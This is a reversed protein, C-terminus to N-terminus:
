APPHWKKELQARLHERARAIKREIAKESCKLVAAIARHRQGNIEFLVFAVRQDHPLTGIAQELDRGLARHDTEDSPDSTHSRDATDKESDADLVEPHRSRWRARMRCLNTAITFLWTSFAANAKRKFSARATYVKVFTEQAIDRADSLNGTYRLCFSVLPQKWRSMLDNLALDDGDQLRQMCRFDEESDDEPM